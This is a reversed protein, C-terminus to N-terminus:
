EGSEDNGGLLRSISLDLNSEVLHLLSELEVADVRLSRALEERTGDILQQRARATRRAATARHVGLSAAMEDCSLGELASLRLVLREPPALRGIARAFAARFAERYHAKLFGLELDRGDALVDIAEDDVAGESKAGREANIFARIAAVRLWNELFGRGSYSAIRPETGPAAVFLRLRLLQKLEDRREDTRAFRAVAGDIVGAFRREFARIAVANGEACACALYFDDSRVRAVDHAAASGLHHELRRVFVAEDLEIEPWAARGVAALSSLPNSAPM